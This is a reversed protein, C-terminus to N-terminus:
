AIDIDYAADAVHGPTELHWFVRLENLSCSAVSILTSDEVQVKHVFIALIQAVIVGFVVPLVLIRVLVPNLKM